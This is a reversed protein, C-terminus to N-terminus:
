DKLRKQVTRILAELDTHRADKYEVVVLRRGLQFKVRQPATETRQGADFAGTENAYGCLWMTVQGLGSYAAKWCEPANEKPVGAPAAAREYSALTWGPAVSKPLDPQAGAGGGCASTWGAGALAATFLLSSLARRLNM